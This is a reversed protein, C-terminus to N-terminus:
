RVSYKGYLPGTGICLFYSQKQYPSPPRPGNEWRYCYEWLDAKQPQCCSGDTLIVVSLVKTM